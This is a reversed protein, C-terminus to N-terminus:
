YERGRKYNQRPHRRDRTNLGALYRIRDNGDKFTTNPLVHTRDALSTQTPQKKQRKTTTELHVLLRLLAVFAFLNELCGHLLESM